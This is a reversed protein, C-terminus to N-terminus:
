RAEMFGPPVPANKPLIALVKFLSGMQRPDTLRAVAEGDTSSFSKGALKALRAEIGLALLFQGQEIPGCIRVDEAETLCAMAGFDVHCSIDAEGPSNLVDEFRHQGIAQFTDGFGTGDHGYDLILAAGGMSAIGHAIDQVLAGAAPSVEYVAGPTAVGRQAPIRLSSPAPALAFSLQDGDATIVRERWGKQTMVFQQVPFADLFENAILFSARDHAIESAHHVWRIPLQHGRLLERQKAALVPSAEVVVVELGDLFEPVRGLARLADSILTGRGPGLEVLRAPSPKGQEHWVQACWLGVLEGFIQTMEPATIFDAGLPDRTAYYGAKPDHLALTMYEAISLPGGARILRAIRMGLENQARM